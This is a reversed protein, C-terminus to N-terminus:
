KKFFNSAYELLIRHILLEKSEGTEISIRDYLESINKDIQPAPEHSKTAKPETNKIFRSISENAIESINMGNQISFLKMEKHLNEYINITKM